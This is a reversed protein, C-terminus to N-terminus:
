AWSHPCPPALLCAQFGAGSARVSGEQREGAEEGGWEGPAESGREGSLRGPGQGQPCGQLDQELCPAHPLRAWLRPALIAGAGWTHGCPGAVPTPHPSGGSRGQSGPPVWRRLGHLDTLEGLKHRVSEVTDLDRTACTRAPPPPGGPLEQGRPNSASVEGGWTEGSGCRPRSRM